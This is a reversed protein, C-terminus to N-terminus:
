SRVTIKKNKKPNDFDFLFFPAVPMEGIKVPISFRNAIEKFRNMLTDGIKYLNQHINEKKMFDITAIAATISLTEGAYTVTLVFDNLKDMIERKGCYTSILYVSVVAKAFSSLDPKVNFYEQAGGISLKFGTLFEDFILIVEYKNAFNKLARPFEGTTDENFDYPIALICAIKDGDNTLIKENKEIEGYNVEYVYKNLIEPVGNGKIGTMFWDNYGNYDGRIIKDKGTYSRALCVNWVNADVGNKMFRVMEACPVIEIIKEALEVELPSAVSFIVGKDIQLKVAQDVEDFCYVLIVAGLATRYDIFERHNVDWFRCGKAKEIYFPMIGSFEKIPRKANTQMGWPIIKLAKEFLTESKTM